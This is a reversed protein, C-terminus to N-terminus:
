RYFSVGKGVFNGSAFLGQNWRYICFASVAGRTHPICRQKPDPEVSVSYTADGGMYTIPVTTSPSLKSKLEDAIANQAATSQGSVLSGGNM